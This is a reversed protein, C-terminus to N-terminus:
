FDVFFFLVFVGSSNFLLLQSPDSNWARGEADLCVWLRNVMLYPKGYLKANARQCKIDEWCVCGRLAFVLFVCAFVRVPAFQERCM